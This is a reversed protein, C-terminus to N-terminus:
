GDWMREYAAQREAIFAAPDDGVALRRLIPRRRTDYEHIWREPSDPRGLVRIPGTMRSDAQELELGAALLLESEAPELRRAFGPELSILLADTM